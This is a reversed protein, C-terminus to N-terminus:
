QRNVIKKPTKKVIKKQCFQKIAFYTDDFNSINDKTTKTSDKKWM